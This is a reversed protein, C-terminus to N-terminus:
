SLQALNMRAKRSGWGVGWGSSGVLQGQEAVGGRTELSVEAANSLSEVRDELLKALKQKAGGM